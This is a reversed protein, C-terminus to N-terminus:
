ESPSGTDDTGGGGGNGTGGAGAADDDDDDDDTSSPQDSATGGGGGGNGTGGAGAADDDDDDTSSPQDSATGGGGGGDGTGGTAQDDTTDDEATTDEEATTTTAAAADAAAASVTVVISDSATKGNADTVTLAVNYTGPQQFQHQTSVENSTQGDGFNWSYTYPSTGGSVSASAQFTFPAPGTTTGEATIDVKFSTDVAPTTSLGPTTASPGIVSVTFSITGKRGVADTASCQVTHDGIPLVSGSAPNCSITIDGGIGGRYDPDQTLVNNVDLKATGDVDDRASVQYGVSASTTDDDLRNIQVGGFQTLTPVSTDIAGAPIASTCTVSVWAVNSQLQVPELIEIAMWEQSSPANNIDGLKRTQTPAQASDAILNQGIPPGLYGMSDHWRYKIDLIPGVGTIIAKFDITVPCPGEYHAPNASASVKITSPDGPEARSRVKLTFEAQASNGASDTASCQVKHDGVPYIVSKPPPNCSITISGGVSDGQYLTNTVDLWAHGDVIDDAIVTYGIRDGPIGADLLTGPHEYMTLTPGTTDRPPPSTTATALAPILLGVFLIVAFFLAISGILV